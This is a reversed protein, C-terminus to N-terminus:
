RIWKASKGKSMGMEDSKREEEEIYALPFVGMEWATM